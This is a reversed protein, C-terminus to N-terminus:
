SDLHSQAFHFEINSYKDIIAYINYASTYVHQSPRKKLGSSTLGERQKKNVRILNIINLLDKDFRDYLNFCLVLLVLSILGQFIDIYIIQCEFAPIDSPFHLEYIINIVSLGTRWDRKDPGSTKLWLRFGLSSLFLIFRLLFPFPYSASLLHISFPHVFSLNKSPFFREYGKDIRKGYRNAIRYRDTQSGM